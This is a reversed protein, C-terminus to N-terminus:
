TRVLFCNLIDLIDGHIVTYEVYLEDVLDAGWIVNDYMTQLHIYVQELTWQSFLESSGTARLGNIERMTKIDYKYQKLNKVINFIKKSLNTIDYKIFVESNRDFGTVEHPQKSYVVELLEDRDKAKKIEILQKEFPYLLNCVNMFDIANPKEKM